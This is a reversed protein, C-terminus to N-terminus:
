LASNHTIAAALPIDNSALTRSINYVIKDMCGAIMIAGVGLLRSIDVTDDNTGHTAWGLERSGLARPVGRNEVGPSTGMHKGVVEWHGPPRRHKGGGAAQLGKRCLKANGSVLGRWCGTKAVPLWPMDVWAWRVGKSGKTGVISKLIHLPNGGCRSLGGIAERTGHNSHSTVGGYYGYLPPM